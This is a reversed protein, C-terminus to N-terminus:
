GKKRYNLSKVCVPYESDVTWAGKDERSTPVTKVNTILATSKRLAFHAVTCYLALLSISTPCKRFIGESSM